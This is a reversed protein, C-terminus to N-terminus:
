RHPAVVTASVRPSVHPPHQGLVRVPRKQFRHEHFRNGYDLPYIPYWVTSEDTVYAPEGEGERARQAGFQAQYAAERAQAAAERAERASAASAAAAADAASEPPSPPVPTYSAIHEVRSSAPCPMNTYMVEGSASTCRFIDGANAWDCCSFALLVVFSASRM